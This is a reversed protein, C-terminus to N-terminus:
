RIADKIYDPIVFPQTSDFIKLAVDTKHSKMHDLLSAEDQYSTGLVLNLKALGNAKLLQPELTPFMDGKGICVSINDEKAYDAYSATKAAEKEDNDTM